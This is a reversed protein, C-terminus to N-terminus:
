QPNHVPPIFPARQERLQLTDVLATFILEMQKPRNMYYDFSARFVSDSVSNDSYVKDKMIQFVVESSDRSLLLRNVKEESIYFDALVQVMEVRSLIGKAPKRESEEGCGFCALLFAASLFARTWIVFITKLM